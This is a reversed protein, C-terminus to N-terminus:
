KVTLWEDPRKMAENAAGIVAMLTITEEKDVPANGDDFFKIMAYMFNKFFDSLVHKVEVKDGYKVVAHQPAEWSRPMNMYARRGDGFELTFSISNVSGTYMIRKIDPGMLYVIPEFQHIFYNEEVGPGVSTVYTAEGKPLEQFETAFRLASTSFLKTGSKEAVDFIRRAAEADPAFTKDVYTLKGSSLPVKCLKEHQEPNDPSLVILVDSKEVVEDITDCLEIGNEQAWEENTKGGNPNDIDGYAYAVEYRGESYDKLWKPYNNAHWEDLYYDIFGVKKM